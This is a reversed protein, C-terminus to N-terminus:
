SKIHSGWRPLLPSSPPPFLPLTPSSNQHATVQYLKICLPDAGLDLGKGKMFWKQCFFYGQPGSKILLQGM